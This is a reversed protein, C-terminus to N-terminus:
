NLNDKIEIKTPEYKDINTNDGLQGKDNKGWTWVDGNSDLAISHGDGGSVAIINELGEIQRPTFYDNEAFGYGLEGYENDGWTWVKGQNDIALNHFDGKAISVINNLGEVQQVEDVDGWYWVTGDEKLALMSSPSGSISKIESIGIVKSPEAAFNDTCLNLERFYGWAYVNGDNKLALSYLGGTVVQKFDNLGTVGEPMEINERSTGLQGYMNDGWTWVEGNDKLAIVTDGQSDIDIISNVKDLKFITDKSEFTGDGLQGSGNSGVGWVDGNADIALLHSWGGTVKVVNPIKKILTPTKIDDEIGPNKIGLKNNGWFFISGDELLAVSYDEGALISIVKNSQKEDIVGNDTAATANSAEPVIDQKQTCGSLIISITLICLLIKNIKM